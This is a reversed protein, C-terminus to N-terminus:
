RHNQVPAQPTAAARPADPGSEIEGATGVEPAGAVAAACASGSTLSADDVFLSSTLVKDTKAYFIVTVQKGAYSSLDLQDQVWGASETATCLSFRHLTTTKQNVQLQVYGYDYGCQDESEIQYMYRLQAPAAAPITVTQKITSTERNAGGLWALEQGSSPPLLVGCSHADCILSFGQSSSENWGTHRAEFDGNALLNSCAVPRPTNTPTATPTRTPTNTPTSTATNAPTKTPTNTIIPTNTATPTNTPTNAPTNTATNTPTSTPTNTVTPTNTPTTQSPPAVFGTYLLRNPSNAGANTVTAPANAVLAAAVQAPSANPNAELYLAAAGAIHPTAM